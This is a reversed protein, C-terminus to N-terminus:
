FAFHGRLWWEQKEMATMSNRRGGTAQPSIPLWCGRAYHTDQTGSCGAVRQFLSSEILFDPTQSCTHMTHQDLTAPMSTYSDQNSIFAIYIIHLFLMLTDTDLLEYIHSNICTGLNLRNCIQYFAYIIEKLPYCFFFHM